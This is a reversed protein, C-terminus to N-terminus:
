YNGRWLRPAAGILMGAILGGFHAGNAINGVAGTLGLIAWVIMQMVLSQPVYFGDEPLFVSRMWLYGFLGYVVGSLGGFNGGAVVYQVCNSFLGISLVLLFLRWSGRVREIVGGMMWFMYVNFGLHLLSFHLFIPSILRWVEGHLLPSLGQGPLSFQFQNVIERQRGYDSGLTFAMCLATVLVTVQIRDSGRVPVRRERSPAPRSPAPPPAKPEFRKAQPDAQFAALEDRCVALKEEDYVWVEWAGQAADVRNKIGQGSLYRGFREAHPASTLTGIKRM